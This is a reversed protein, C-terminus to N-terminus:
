RSSRKLYELARELGEISDGLKGLGSNCRSCLIGRVAGSEHCHDVHVQKTDVGDPPFRRRCIACRWGQSIKLATLQEPTIGYDSM